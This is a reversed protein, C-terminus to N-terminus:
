HKQYSTGEGTKNHNFLEDHFQWADCGACGDLHEECRKGFLRRTYVYSVLHDIKDKIWYCM